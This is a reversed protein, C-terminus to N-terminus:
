AKQGGTAPIPPSLASTRESV